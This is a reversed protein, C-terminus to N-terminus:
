GGDRPHWRKLRTWAEATDPCLLDAAAMRDIEAARVWGGRQWEAAHVAIEATTAAIFLHVLHRVDGDEFSFSDVPTLDERLGTEEWLERAAGQPPSEGPEIRGGAGIGYRGPYTRKDERRQHIFWAGDPRQLFIMAIRNKLGAVQAILQEQATSQIAGPRVWRVLAIADHAAMGRRTLLCAAITGARGLGAMCHVLVNDGAALSREISSLIDALQAADPVGFDEIPFSSFAAGAATVALARQQLSEGYRAVEDAELLCIVHAISAARLRSHDEASLAHGDLQPCRWIFLHGPADLEPISVPKM